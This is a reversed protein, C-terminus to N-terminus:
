VAETTTASGRAVVVDEAGVGACKCKPQCMSAGEVDVVATVAATKTL